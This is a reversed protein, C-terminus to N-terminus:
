RLGANIKELAVPGPCLHQRGLSALPAVCTNLAAHMDTALPDLYLLGTVVEGQDAHRQMYDLAAYRNTPDYDEHLKRL